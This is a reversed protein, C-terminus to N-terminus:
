RAGGKMRRAAMRKMAELAFARSEDDLSKLIEFGRDDSIDPDGIRINIDVVVAAGSYFALKAKYRDEASIGPPLVDREWAEWNERLTFKEIRKPDDSM